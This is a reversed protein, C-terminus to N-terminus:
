RVLGYPQRGNFERWTMRPTGYPAGPETLLHMIHSRAKLQKFHKITLHPTFCTFMLHEELEFLFVHLISVCCWFRIWINSSLPYTRTKTLKWRAEPCLLLSFSHVVRVIYWRIESSSKSPNKPLIWRSLIVFWRKSSTAAKSYLVQSNKLDWHSSGFHCM